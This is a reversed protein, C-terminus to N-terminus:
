AKVEFQERLLAEDLILTQGDPDRRLVAYGEVNLLRQAHAIAGSLAPLPVELATAAVTPALRHGGELLRVLLARIQADTTSLRGALRKQAAYTTSTLVEKALRVSGAEVAPQPRPEFLDSQEPGAAPPGALPAAWWAPEQPAALRLKSVAPVSGPVLVAVPVVVEAPSGGGHYGAKLPGYRLREDVALVARGQHRLVRRGTVLVEGEGAPSLAARSRGSSIDPYLRQAGQRREVVHGHDATLVVVRGARRAEGLLPRLHKVTDTRWDTGGPDSRDLADDITNLICTVLRRGDVDEIAARVDDALAYGSRSSDLPKKHLLLASTFGQAKLLESHGRLEDTPQGTRLEGSLLSVRSVATLSPLGALAASRGTDGPMLAELWGDAPRSLVDALVEACVAATMGDLVLLLTPQTQAVPLIVDSLLDEVHRVGRHRGGDWPPDQSTHEALAAAFALDHTDRRVRVEALVAALGASLDPDSVGASADNVASDVWADAERHRAVLAELGPRDVASSLALWRALRVAAQFPAFRDDDLALRHALVAAWAHEIAALSAPRVHVADPDASAWGPSAPAARRLATALLSLRSTLGSPLLDSHVALGTAQCAVLIDDARALVFEAAVRREGRRDLDMATQRAEVALARLAPISPLIGGFRAEMRVLGERATQGTEGASDRAEVLLGAVLGLPVADTITGSRLLHLLPGSAVGARGAAWELVADTLANGALGRLDATRAIAEREVSWRLLSSVDVDPDGLRLHERAVAGLAHDRTVVGAPAPPWGDSPAAALLGVAVERGAPYLTLTPDIGSAAFRYRVADWPDPTRLRPWVFHALLGAGLDHEPRDTLVVLWEGEVRDLLAERVALASVCPAIRVAVNEHTFLPEYPWEPRARVGLVGSRFDKRAAEDLLARVVPPTAAQVSAQNV